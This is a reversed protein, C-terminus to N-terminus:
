PRADTWRFDGRKTLRVTTRSAIDFSHVYDRDLDVYVIKSDDSSFHGRMGPVHDAFEGTDLDYEVVRMTTPYHLTVLISNRTRAVDLESIERFGFPSDTTLLLDDRVVNRSDPDLTVLRVEHRLDSEYQRLYVFRNM